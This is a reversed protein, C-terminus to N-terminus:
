CCFGDFGLSVGLAAFKCGWAASIELIKHWAVVVGLRSCAASFGGVVVM